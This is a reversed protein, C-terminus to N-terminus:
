VAHLSTSLDVIHIQKLVRRREGLFEINGGTGGGLEVWVGGDPSPLRDYLEQRGLLLRQRFRDYDAAQAGYFSDLRQQHTAGRIPALTLRFLTKMDRVLSM